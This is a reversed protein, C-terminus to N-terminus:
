SPFPALFIMGVEGVGRSCSGEFGEAFGNEICLATGAEKPVHGDHRHCSSTGTVYVRGM